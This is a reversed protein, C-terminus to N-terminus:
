DWFHESSLRVGLIRKLCILVQRVARAGLDVYCGYGLFRSGVVRGRSPDSSWFVPGKNIKRLFIYTGPDLLLLMLCGGWGVRGMGVGGGLGTFVHVVVVAGVPDEGRGLFRGGPSLAGLAPLDAFLIVGRPYFIFGMTGFSGRVLFMFFGISVWLGGTDGQGELRCLAALVTPGGGRREEGGEGANMRVWFGQKSALKKRGGKM